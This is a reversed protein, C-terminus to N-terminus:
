SLLLAMATHSRYSPHVGFGLYLHPSEQEASPETISQAVWTQRTMGVDDQAFVACDNEDVTAKPRPMFAAFVIHNWFAVRLKPSGHYFTVASTVFFLLVLKGCHAPMADCHPLALQFRCYHVVGQIRQNIGEIAYVKLGM